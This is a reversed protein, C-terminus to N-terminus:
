PSTLGQALCSKKSANRYQCEQGAAGFKLAIVDLNVLYGATWFLGGGSQDGFLVLQTRQAISM